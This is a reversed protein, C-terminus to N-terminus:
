IPIVAFAWGHGAFRPFEVDLTARTMHIQIGGGPVVQGSGPTATEVVPERGMAPRPPGERLRRELPGGEPVRITFKPSNPM